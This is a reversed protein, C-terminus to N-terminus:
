FRGLMSRICAGILWMHLLLAMLGRAMGDRAQPPLDAAYALTTAALFAAGWMSLAFSGAHLLHRLAGPGALLGAGLSRLARM